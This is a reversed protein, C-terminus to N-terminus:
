ASDKPPMTWPPTFPVISPKANPVEFTTAFLISGLPVWADGSVIAGERSAMGFATTCDAGNPLSLDVWNRGDPKIFIRIMKM